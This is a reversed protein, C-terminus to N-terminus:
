VPGYRGIQNGAIGGVAAGIAAGLLTAETSRGIAQGLAAGGGAGILVGTKTGREQNTPGACSFVSLIILLIGVMSIAKKMKREWTSFQNMLATGM